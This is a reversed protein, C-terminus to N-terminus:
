QRQIPITARRIPPRTPRETVTITTAASRIAGGWDGATGNDRPVAFAVQVNHRGPKLPVQVRVGYPSAGALGILKMRGPALTIVYSHGARTRIRVNKYPDGQVRAGNDDVAEVQIPKNSPGTDVRIPKAGTNRLAVLMSLYVKGGQCYYQGATGRGYAASPMLAVQLGAADAKGWPWADVNAIKRVRGVIAPSALQYHPPMPAFYYEKRGALKKLLLVYSTGVKLQVGFRRRSSIRPVLVPKGPGAPPVAPKAQPKKPPSSITLVTLTKRGKNSKDADLIIDTVQLTASRMWRKTATKMGPLTVTMEKADGGATVKGVIVLDSNLVTPELPIMAMLGWAPATAM